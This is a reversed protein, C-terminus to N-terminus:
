NAHNWFEVLKCRTIVSPARILVKKVYVLIIKRCALCVLFALNNDKSGILLAIYFRTRSPVQCDVRQLRFRELVELQVKHDPGCEDRGM